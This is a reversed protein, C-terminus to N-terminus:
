LEVEVDDVDKGISRKKLFLVLKGNTKLASKLTDELDAIDEKGYREEFDDIHFYLLFLSRGIKDVATVIGPLNKDISEDVDSIDMLSNLATLDFVDKQGTSVARRMTDFVTPEIEGYDSRDNTLLGQVPISDRVDGEIRAGSWPETGITNDLDLMPAYPDYEDFPAKLASKTIFEYGDESTNEVVHSAAEKSLGCDTMLTKMADVESHAEKNIGQFNFKWVNGCRAATSASKDFIRSIGVKSDLPRTDSTSDNAYPYSTKLIGCQGKPIILSDGSTIIGEVRDSEVLRVDKYLARYDGSPKHILRVTDGTTDSTNQSGVTQLVGDDLESLTKTPEAQITIIPDFVSHETKDSMEVLLGICASIAMNGVQEYLDGNYGPAQNRNPLWLCEKVSLDDFVVNYVGPESPNSLSLDGDIIQDLDKDEREDVVVYGKKLLEQKQEETFFLEPETFFIPSAKKEKTVSKDDVETKKLDKDVVTEKIPAKHNNSKHGKPDDSLGEFTYMKSAYKAFEPYQILRFELADCLSPNEKAMKELDLDESAKKYLEEKHDMSFMGLAPTLDFEKGIVVKGTIMSPGFPNAETAATKHIGRGLLDRFNPTYRSLASRDEEEDPNGIMAPKKNLIFDVWSEDMPIFSDASGNYLLEQGKLKGNIFFVPAYFMDKNKGGVSFGFVGVAKTEDDNQDLVQFGVMFDLLKPANRNIYSYALDAFSKEFEPSPQPM